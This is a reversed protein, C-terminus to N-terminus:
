TATLTTSAGQAHPRRRDRLAVLSASRRRAGTVTPRFRSAAWRTPRTGSGTADIGIPIDRLVPHEQKDIM